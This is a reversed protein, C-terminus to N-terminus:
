GVEIDSLARNYMRFDDLLGLFQYTQYQSGNGMWGLFLKSDINFPLNANITTSTKTNDIYFSIETGNRVATYM